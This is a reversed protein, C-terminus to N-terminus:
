NCLDEQNGVHKLLVSPMAAVPFRTDLVVSPLKSDDQFRSEPLGQRFSLKSSPHHFSVLGM